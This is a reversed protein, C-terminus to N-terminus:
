VFNFKCIIVKTPLYPKNRFEKLSSSIFYTLLFLIISFYFYTQQQPDEAVIDTALSTSNLSANNMTDNLSSMINENGYNINKPGKRLKYTSKFADIIFIIAVLAAFSDETFRTIYKVLFSLNFMVLIIIFFATWLGTWLRFTLFDIDYNSYKKISYYISIM